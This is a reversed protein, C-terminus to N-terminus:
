LLGRPSNNKPPCLPKLANSGAFTRASVIAGDTAKVPITAITLDADTDLHFQMMANVDMKYIHDGGFVCVNDPKEDFILELNQYVADATGRFWFPGKRMQRVGIALNEYDIFVAILPETPM